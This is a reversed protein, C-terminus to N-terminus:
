DLDMLRGLGLNGLWRFPLRFKSQVEQTRNTEFSVTITSYQVRNTLYKLRGELQEIEASLRRLEQEVKISEEVNKTNALLQQIRERVARANKLRISIDLFQETVDNVEVNRNLVDGMGAIQKVTNNFQAAPVRITIRQDTRNAVFGGVEVALTEVDGISKEVEFVGMRFSATYILIQQIPPTDAVSVPLNQGDLGQTPPTGGSTTGGPTALDATMRPSAPPSSGAFATQDTARGAEGAAREFRPMDYEEMGDAAEPAANAEFAYGYDASAAQRPAEPYLAGGGCAFSLAAFVIPIFQMWTFFPIPQHRKMPKVKWTESKWDPHHFASGTVGLKCKRAIRDAHTKQNKHPSHPNSM